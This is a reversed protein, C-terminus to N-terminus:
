STTEAKALAARVADHADPELRAMVTGHEVVLKLAALLDPAAAILSIRRDLVDQLDFASTVFVAAVPESGAPGVWAYTNDGGTDLRWEEFEDTDRLEVWPGETHKSM